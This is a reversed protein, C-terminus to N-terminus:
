HSTVEQHQLRQPSRSALCVPVLPATAVELFSSAWVVEFAGLGCRSPLSIAPPSGEVSPGPSRCPVPAASHPPMQSMPICASSSDADASCFASAQGRRGRSSVRFLEWSTVSRFERPDERPTILSSLILALGQLAELKLDKGALQMPGGSSGPHASGAEARCAPDMSARPGAGFGM